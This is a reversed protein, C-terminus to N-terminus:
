LAERRLFAGGHAVAERGEPLIGNWLPFAHIMSPWVELTVGVDVEALRAALRTSDALLTEHSGVQILTPPLGRLDANLVSLRPDALEAGAAFAAALEDLYARHILPDVGDKSTMTAGSQTLDSWPSILWLAAPGPEGADRLRVALGAALAGGASDGGVAIRDPAFGAELLARWVALVDDYAAPFPHEPALRYAPALVRRGAARGAETALRRHSVISGSCFGGGHLFILARSRDAGPAQSWEAPVGGLVAPELAIDPAVPTVAGVEEIRARREGWGVPRSKAALLAKVDAISM